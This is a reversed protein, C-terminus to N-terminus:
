SGWVLKRCQSTVNRMKLNVGLIGLTMFLENIGNELEEEFGKETLGGSKSLAAECDLIFAHSWQMRLHRM